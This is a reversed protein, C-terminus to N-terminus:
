YGPSISFTQNISNYDSLRRYFTGNLSYQAILSLESESLPTYNFAFYGMLGSDKENSAPLGIDSSPKATVNTDYIYSVSAQLRTAKYSELSKMYAMEYDRAFQGLESNPNASIVAKLSNIAKSIKRDKAYALAIQFDAPQSITIDERKAKEFSKIADSNKNLKMLVLGKLFSIKAPEVRQSEAKTIFELAEKNKDLNYYMEILEGYAEIVPPKLKIADQFYESAKEYDGTQKYVLGLYFAVLSSDKNQQRAKYLFDFAEEFNEARYEQIGKNLDDQFCYSKTPFILLFSIFFIFLYNNM